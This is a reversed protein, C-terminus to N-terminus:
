LNGNKMKERNIKEILKKLSKRQQEVLSNEPSLNSELKKYAKELENLREEYEKIRRKRQHFNNSCRKKQCTPAEIRKAWFVEKCIPCIRLRKPDIGRLVQILESEFDITGDIIILDSPYHGKSKKLGFQEFISKPNVFRGTKQYNMCIDAIGRIDNRMQLFLEYRQYATKKYYYARVDFRIKDYRNELSPCGDLLFLYSYLKPFRRTDAELFDLAREHAEELKENEEYTPPIWEGYDNEPPPPIMPAIDKGTLEFYANSVLIDWSRLNARIYPVSNILKLWNELNQPCEAIKQYIM